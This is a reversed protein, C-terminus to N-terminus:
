SPRPRSSRSAPLSCIKQHSTPRWTSGLDAHGKTRQEKETPRRAACWSLWPLSFLFPFFSIALPATPTLPLTVMGVTALHPSLVGPVLPMPCRRKVAPRHSPSSYDIPPPVCWNEVPGKQKLLCFVFRHFGTGDAPAAASYETLTDGTQLDGNKINTMLWHPAVSPRDGVAGDPSVMALTWLADPDDSEFKVSPATVTQNPDLRAVRGVEPTLLLLSAQNAIPLASPPPLPRFAPLEGHFGQPHQRQARRQGRWIDGGPQDVSDVPDAVNRQFLCLTHSHTRRLAVTM